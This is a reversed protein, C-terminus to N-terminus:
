KLWSIKNLVDKNVINRPREERLVRGVEETTQRLQEELSQDSYFATHGTVVVNPLEVIKRDTERPPENELVDLAAGKIRNERLAKYLAEQEIIPGRATNIIFASPKMKRFVAENFIGKTAPILPAHISIFDSSGVMEEFDVMRVNYEDAQEQSVFPDCAIVKVEFGSLKKAIARPIRGFGYLGVISGALRNVPRLHKFGWNGEKVYPIMKYLGRACHLLLAVTHEAVEDVCYAPNNTVIVGQKTAGGPNTFDFGISCACYATLRTEAYARDSMPQFGSLLIDAGQLAEIIEKEPLPPISAVVVEAARYEQEINKQYEALTEESMGTMGSIVVRKKQDM